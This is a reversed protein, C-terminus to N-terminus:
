NRGTILRLQSFGEPNNQQVFIETAADSTRGAVGDQLAVGQLMLRLSQRL